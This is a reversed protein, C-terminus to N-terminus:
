NLEIISSNNELIGNYFSPIRGQIVKSAVLLEFTYEIDESLAPYLIGERVYLSIYLNLLLSNIGYSTVKSYVAGRVNQLLKLQVHIKPGLNILLINDTWSYYPAKIVINDKVIHTGEPPNGKKLDLIEKDLNDKIDLMVAYARDLKFSVDMVEDNQNRSINILEEITIENLKERTFHKIVINTTIEKLEKKASVEITKSFKKSFYMLFFITNIIIFIIIIFILRKKEINIQKKFKVRKM